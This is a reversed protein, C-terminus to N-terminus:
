IRAAGATRQRQLTNFAFWPFRRHRAFRGDQFRMLHKFFEGLDVKRLRPTYFDGSGDPFLTPFALTMYGPTRENIPTNAIPPTALQSYTQM